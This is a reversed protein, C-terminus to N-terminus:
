YNLQDFRARTMEKKREIEWKKLKNHEETNKGNTPDTQSAPRLHGNNLSM